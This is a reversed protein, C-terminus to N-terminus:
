IPVAELVKYLGRTHHVTKMQFGTQQLMSSLEQESREKGDVAVMMAIDLLYKVSPDTDAIIGQLVTEVLLVVATSNSGIAERLNKLIFKAKEDSWDHVIDRLVYAESRGQAKPLKGAVLFNCAVFSVRQLMSEDYQSRWRREAKKVVASLDRVVGSVASNQQMIAAVLTGYAGGVDIVRSYHSWDFDTLVAHIGLKDQSAMAMSFEHELEPRDSLYQWIDTQHALEFPVKDQKLGEAISGWPLYLSQISGKITHTVTNSHDGRLVASLGSNHFTVPEHKSTQRATFVGFSAAASLLRSLKDANKISLQQALQQASQGSDGLADAIGLDNVAIIVQSKHFGNLALDVMRAAPPMAWNPFREMVRFAQFPVSHFHITCVLPLCKLLMCSLWQKQLLLHAPMLLRSQQILHLRQWHGCMALQNTSCVKFGFTFAFWPPISSHDRMIDQQQFVSAALVALCVMLAAALSIGLKAM